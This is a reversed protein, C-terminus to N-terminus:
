ISQLVAEYMKKLNQLITEYKFKKKGAEKLHHDVEAIYNEFPSGSYLGLLATGLM